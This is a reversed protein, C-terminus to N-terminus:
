THAPVSVPALDPGNDDGAHQDPDARLNDALLKNPDLSRPLGGLRGRVLGLLQETRHEAPPPRVKASGVKVFHEVKDGFLRLHV